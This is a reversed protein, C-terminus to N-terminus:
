QVIYYDSNPKQCIIGNTLLSIILNLPFRDNIAKFNEMPFLLIYEKIDEESYIPVSQTNLDQSLNIEENELTDSSAYVAPNKRAILFINKERHTPNLIGSIGSIGSVLKIGNWCMTRNENITRKEKIYGKEKMEKGIMRENVAKSNMDKCFKYYAKTFESSPLVRDWDEEICNDLFYSLSDSKANWMEKIKTSTQGITFDKNEFMRHLGEIAWNLLGSLEEKTQLKKEIEPDMPKLNVQEDPPLSDIEEQVKFTYPFEIIVWRAWFGETQDCTKPLENCSFVLKAYNVFHLANMFKRQATILDRGTLEKFRGSNKLANSSLDGALNAMKGHLGSIAFGDQEFTQLPVSSVNDAGLFNKMLNLTKGKGNRGSGIFMVAKEIFYLKYLLFGFLEQIVKIDDISSLVTEFHKKITPCDSFPNYKMPLKNFFIKTSDFPSLKKTRLNLIGNQVPVEDVYDNKFFDKADIYTDVAIKDIVQNCRHTTYSNKLIQRCFEKIASKGNPKYIGDEYVWVECDADSRITYVRNLEVFKETMLESANYPENKDYFMLVQETLGKFKNEQRIEEAIIDVGTMMDM